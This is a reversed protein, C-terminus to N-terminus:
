RDDLEDAIPHGATRYVTFSPQGQHSPCRCGLAREGADNTEDLVGLEALRRDLSQDVANAGHEDRRHHQDCQARQHSPTDGCAVPLMRQDGAHRHEHDGTRAGQTQRGGRRDHRAGAWGPLYGLLGTLAPVALWWVAWLRPWQSAPYDRWDCTGAAVLILGDCLPLAPALGALHGGSSHGLLWLRTDPRQERAHRIVADLDREGWDRLTAPDHRAPARRSDGIGRPDWLLVDFGQSGLHRAFDAYFRRRVGTAPALLVVGHCAGEPAHVWQATLPVADATTIHFTTM